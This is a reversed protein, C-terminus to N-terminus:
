SGEEKHRDHRGQTYGDKLGASYAARLQEAFWRSLGGRDIHNDIANTARHEMRMTAFSYLDTDL